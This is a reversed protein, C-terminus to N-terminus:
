ILECFYKWLGLVRSQDEVREKNSTYIKDRANDNNRISAM